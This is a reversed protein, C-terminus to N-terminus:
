SSTFIRPDNIEKTTCGPCILHSLKHTYRTLVQALLYLTLGGTGPTTPFYLEVSRDPTVHVSISVYVSPERSKVVTVKTLAEARKKTVSSSM